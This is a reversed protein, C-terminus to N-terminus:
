SKTVYVNINFRCGLRDLRGVLALVMGEGRGWCTYLIKRKEPPLKNKMSSATPLLQLFFMAVLMIKLDVGMKLQSSDVTFLNISLPFHIYNPTNLSTPRLYVAKAVTM